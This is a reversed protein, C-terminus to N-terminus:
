TKDESILSTDTPKYGAIAMSVIIAILGLLAIFPHAVSITSESILRIGAPIAEVCVIILGVLTILAGIGKRQHATIRHLAFIKYGAKGILYFAVGPARGMTSKWIFFAGWGVGVLTILLPVLSIWLPMTTPYLGALHDIVLGLAILTGLILAVGTASYATGVMLTKAMVWKSMGNM